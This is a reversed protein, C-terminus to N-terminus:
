NQTTLKRINLTRAHICHMFWVGLSDIYIDYIRGDRGFYLQLIETSIAFAVTLWGSLAPKRLWKFLLLDMVAFGCFHGSKIFIWFPNLIHADRTIFLDLFNPHNTWRFLITQRFLLADLSNSCTFILLIVMWTFVLIPYQFKHNLYM